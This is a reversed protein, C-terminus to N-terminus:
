SVKQLVVEMGWEWDNGEEGVREWREGGGRVELLVAAEEQSFPALRSGTVAPDLYERWRLSCAKGSRAPALGAAAAVLAWNGAGHRAM